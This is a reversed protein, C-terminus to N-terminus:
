NWRVQKIDRRNITVVAYPYTIAQTTIAGPPPGQVKADIVATDGEIRVSVPVVSWGGTNRMGGMLFVVVNEGFDVAPAHGEGILSHWRERYVPDSTVLVAAREEANAYSGRAITQMEVPAAVKANTCALAALLIAAKM